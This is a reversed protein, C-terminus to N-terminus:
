AEPVLGRLDAQIRELITRRQVHTGYATIRSEFAAQAFASNDRDHIKRLAHDVSDLATRILDHETPASM